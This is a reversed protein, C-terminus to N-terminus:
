HCLRRLRLRRTQSRIRPATIVTWVKASVTPVVWLRGVVIIFAALLTFRLTMGLVTAPKKPPSFWDNMMPLAAELLVEVSWLSQERWGGDRADNQADSSDGRFQLGRLPDRTPGTLPNNCEKSDGVM